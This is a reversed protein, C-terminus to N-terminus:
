PRRAPRATATLRDRIREQDLAKRWREASEIMDRGVFEFFRSTEHARAGAPTDVGLVEVGRRSIEALDYIQQASTLTARVWAHEDVVYRERRSGADRERRILGQAELAKVAASVTAPSVHLQEVLEAATRSGSDTLYLSTLVAAATRPLGSKAMLVTLQEAFERLAGAGPTPTTAGTRSGGRRARRETARHARGPHYRSPGGNRTVERSVTSTPRALQRAIEAYGIGESLGEAILEREQETLRGGPM